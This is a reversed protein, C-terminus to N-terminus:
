SMTPFMVKLPDPKDSGGASNGSVLNDEGIARGIKIALRLVEPNSGFGTSDLLTKLAPSGFKEFVKNALGINKDFEAGGYEKDTKAAEKWATLLAEGEAAHSKVLGQHMEGFLDVLQQAGDQKLGINKALTQFKGLYEDQPKYGEPFKFDGYKEPAAFKAAEETRAAAIAADYQEKTFTQPASAAAAAAANPDANAAAAANPDANAAAAAGGANTTM